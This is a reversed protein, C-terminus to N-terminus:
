VSKLSNMESRLAEHLAQRYTLGCGTINDPKLKVQYFCIFNGTILKYEIYKM